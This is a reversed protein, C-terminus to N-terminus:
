FSYRAGIAFTRSYIANNFNFLNDNGKGYHNQYVDDLINTADVSVSLNDTVDYNFQFDLSQEPRSWFQLPNAFFKAEDGSYFAERWVYSLRIDYVEKDYIAVVSYSSDSVGTMKSSVVNNVSGDDNFDILSQESDLQTYSAQVGIGDFVEPLDNPFYILGVEIGSLEGDSANVPASLIYDREVDDDGVRRVVKSGAIVLGDIKRKFIAGYLSSGDTFYWELSLDYNQSKTPELEPNGGNGTGYTVGETLPDFWFQLANLQGFDPMRLTETYAIRGVLDDTIDWNLVFSPLLETASGEGTDYNSSLDWFQMDQSYDVYRLGIEGSVYDGLLYKATAYLAYSTEEIDFTTSEVTREYGYVDRVASANNLLYIGNATVYSDFVDARGDMYNDVTKTFGSGDGAAGAAVFQQAMEDLPLVKTTGDQRTFSQAGRQEYKGGFKVSEIYDTDVFWQADFTFTIADGENGDSNDYITGTQWNATAAMDSEDVSTEPNDWFAIGPLGDNDNYDVDLGHAQRDFRMAFFSSEFKSQQFLLESKITLDETAAWKAGLAYLYSDTKGTAADGSQFGNPQYVQREKVVNTGEFVLPTDIRLNGNNGDQEFTNTFWMSTQQEQRYGTYFAEALLELDNTPAWQLSVNFAPRERKAEAVTGFMADRALLYDVPEDGVALTAGAQHSLGNILGPQWYGSADGFNMIKYPQHNSPPNATFFPFEAGATLTDDRFHTEVYSINVLAGFEGLETDWRDSALLSINPDITEPQDAYIGRAAVVVKSDDFNFPRHTKIDISGAIGREVQAASRTKYVDVGSLLSAPIDQLAVARGAGTFIDRKNVTTHVDNLGRISVTSVEGGGRGTVQVGTVRQLSEVVNNDPFKGIDEAVISDIIQANFRKNNLAKNLVGRIGIVEIIETEDKAAEEAIAQQGTLVISAIIASNILSPKFM